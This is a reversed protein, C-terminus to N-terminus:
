VLLGESFTYNFQTPEFGVARIRILYPVMSIATTVPNTCDSIWNEGVARADMLVLSPRVNITVDLASDNPPQVLEGSFYHNTALVKGQFRGIQDGAGFPVRYAGFRSWLLSGDSDPQLPVTIDVNQPGSGDAPYFDGYFSVDVWGEGPSIFDSGHISLYEQVSVDTASLGTIRAFTKPPASSNDGSACGVAILVPITSAFIIRKARNLVTM